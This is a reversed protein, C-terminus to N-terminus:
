GAKAVLPLLSKGNKEAVTVDAGYKILKEALKTNNDVFQLEYGFFCVFWILTRELADHIQSM